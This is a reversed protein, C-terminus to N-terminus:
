INKIVTQVNSKRLAVELATQLLQIIDAKQTGTTIDLATKGVQNQANVNAGAKILAVIANMKKYKVAVHLATEKDDKDKANVDAGAKILAAIADVKGNWAVKHLATDGDKNKVNVDMAAGARLLAAIVDAKENGM